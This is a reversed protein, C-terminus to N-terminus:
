QQLSASGPMCNLMATAGVADGKYHFYAGFINSFTDVM